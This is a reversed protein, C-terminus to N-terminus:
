TQGQEAPDGTDPDNTLLAAGVAKLHATLQAEMAIAISLHEDADPLEDPDVKEPDRVPSVRVHVPYGDRYSAIIDVPPMGNM